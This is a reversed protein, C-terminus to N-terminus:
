YIVANKTREIITIISHIDNLNEFTIDQGHINIDFEKNIMSIMSMIDFSDLLGSSILPTNINLEQADNISKIIKLVGNLFVEYM